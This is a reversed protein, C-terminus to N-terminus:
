KPQNFVLNFEIEIGLETRLMNIPYSINISYLEHNIVEILEAIDKLYDKLVRKPARYGKPSYPHLLIETDKIRIETDKTRIETDKTRQKLIM